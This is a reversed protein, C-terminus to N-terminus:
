GQKLSQAAELVAKIGEGTEVVPLVETYLGAIGLTSVYKAFAVSNEVEYISYTANGGIVGYASLRKFGDSPGAFVPAIKAAVEPLKTNDEWSSILLVKM